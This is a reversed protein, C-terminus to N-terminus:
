SMIFSCLRGVRALVEEQRDMVTENISAAQERYRRLAAPMRSDVNVVGLDEDTITPTGDPLSETKKIPL